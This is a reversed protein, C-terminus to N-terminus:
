SSSQIYTGEVRVQMMEDRERNPAAPGRRRQLIPSPQIRLFFFFFIGLGKNKRPFTPNIRLPFPCFFLFALLYM